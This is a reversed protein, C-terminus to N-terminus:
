ASKNKPTALSRPCGSIFTIRPRIRASHSRSEEFSERHFSQAAISVSLSWGALVCSGKGLSSAQNLGQCFANLM